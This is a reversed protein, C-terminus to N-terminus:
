AFVSQLYAREHRNAYVAQIRGYADGDERVDAWTARGARRANCTELYTGKAIELAAHLRPLTLFNNM